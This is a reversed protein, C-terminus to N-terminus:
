WPISEMTSFTVLLSLTEAVSKMQYLSPVWLKGLKQLMKM